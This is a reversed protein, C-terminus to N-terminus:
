MEGISQEIEETIEADKGILTQVAARLNEVTPETGQPLADLAAFALHVATEKGKVMLLEGILVQDASNDRIDYLWVGLAQPDKDLTGYAKSRLVRLGHSNKVFSDVMGESIGVNKLLEAEGEAGANAGLREKLQKVLITKLMGREETARTKYLTQIEVYSKTDSKIDPLTASLPLARKGEEQNLVYEKLASLLHFFPKSQPSLSALCPDDFLQTLESPIRQPTVRFVQGVAEDFNEEDIKVKMDEILGQLVKREAFNKPM